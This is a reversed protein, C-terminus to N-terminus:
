AAASQTQRISACLRQGFQHLKQILNIRAQATLDIRDTPLGIRPAQDDYLAVGEQPTGAYHDVFGTLDDFSLQYRNAVLKNTLDDWHGGENKGRTKKISLTMSGILAKATIQDPSRIPVHQLPVSLVPGTLWPSEMSARVAHNGEGILCTKAVENPIVVKYRQQTEHSRARFLEYLPANSQYYDTSTPGYTIWRLVGCGDAPIEKDFAQILEAQHCSFFEDADLPVIYRYAETAAIQRALNTLLIAQQFDTSEYKYITIPFGHAKLTLLIELTGDQSNHDIIYIHDFSRCNIKVFLEIIDCEDKVMAIAALKGSM